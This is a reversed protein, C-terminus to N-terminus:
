EVGKATEAPVWGGASAAAHLIFDLGVFSIAALVAGLVIGGVIWDLLVPWLFGAIGFHAITYDAVLPWSGHLLLHGVTIAGAILFPAVPPFAINSGAVVSIPHLKLRRAIFLCVLTQVGYLPLNGIFVGTAFGAAFRTRSLADNRVARWAAVPNIWHMFRRWFVRRRVPAFPGVGAPRPIPNLAGALLRAHMRLSRLSDRWPKFHSVHEDGPLYRCSVPGGTMPVGAWVARTIIETEFGYFESRCPISDVMVLPYVRLGCQSDPVCAGTELYVMLNSFRRGWRSRMPYDAATADRQGIVLADPSHQALLLLGTIDEPALQGDTDITVAHTFGAALAHKFGTRLAAAKGRNSPHSLVTHASPSRSQWASLMGATSDSSGDNVVIVPLATAEIRDLIAAISRDNNYTPAVVVPNFAAIM